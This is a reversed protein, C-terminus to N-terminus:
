LLQSLTGRAISGKPFGRRVAFVQERAKEYHVGGDKWSKKIVAVAVFNARLPFWGIVRLGTVCFEFVAEKPDSCGKLEGESLIEGLVFRRFLDMLSEYPSPKGGKMRSGKWRARTSESRLIDLADEAERSLFLSRTPMGRDGDFIKFRALRGLYQSIPISM